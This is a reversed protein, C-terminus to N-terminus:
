RDNFLDTFPFQKRVPFALNTKQFRGRVVYMDCDQAALYQLMTTEAIRAQQGSGQSLNWSGRTLTLRKWIDHLPGSEASQM